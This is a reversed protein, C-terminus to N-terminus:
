GLRTVVNDTRIYIWVFHRAKVVTFHWDILWAKLWKYLIVQRISPEDERSIHAM